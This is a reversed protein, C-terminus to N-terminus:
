CCQDFQEKIISAAVKDSPLTMSNSSFHLWDIAQLCAKASRFVQLTGESVKRAKYKLFEDFQCFVDLSTQQSQQIIVKEQEYLCNVDFDPKFTAKVFSLPDIGKKLAFDIIDAVIRSMTQLKGNQEKADGYIVPLNDAIKRSKRNWYKPPIPIETDLETRKDSTYCYQIKIVSTGDRRAKSKKCILTLPLLM